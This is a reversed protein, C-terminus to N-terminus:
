PETPLTQLSDVGLRQLTERLVKHDPQKLLAGQWVNLAAETDGQAWLVEGLHAAVEPDPFRTYARTLYEVAEELRGQRFLVWGMSDLIAPEDPQLALARTILELAEEYRTTRDALTYGLANLATANDPEAAIIARLDAEMLALNDMQEGLMSRAYRLSSSEPLIELAENLVVMAGSPHGARILLESELNFLREGRTVHEERLRDFYAGYADFQGQELLLQGARATASYFERGDQVAQYEKIAAEKEGEQEAIRGLYYHADDQRKGLDLMQRLYARATLNDGLEQNILALSFLLDADGPANASLIEFQERAKHIDGRTLLRAYQLRLRQDDPNDLLVQEIHAFPQEAEESLLIKAELLLAQHQHPELAFLRELRARALRYQGLEEHMLAQCLLLQSSDPFEQGLAEVRSLLRQQEEPALQDFGHALIAFNANGSERQVLALHSLAQSTQGQRVLLTALTKNAEVNDPELEVWLRVAELAEQERQLFQTLHTTHASVAPDRLLPAQEMYQALAVDYARRRLAFEALLLPYLSDAPIAREPPEPEATVTEPPEAAQAAPEQQTAATRDGPASACAALMLSLSLIVPLRFMTNHLYM